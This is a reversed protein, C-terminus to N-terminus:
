CIFALAAVFSNTDIGKADWDGLQTNSVRSGVRPQADLGCGAYNDAGLQAWVFGVELCVVNSPFQKEIELWVRAETTLLSM